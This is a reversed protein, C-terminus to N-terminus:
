NSHVSLDTEAVFWFIGWINQLESSSVTFRPVALRRDDHFLQMSESNDKETRLKLDPPQKWLM